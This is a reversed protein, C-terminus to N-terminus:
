KKPGGVIQYDIHTRLRKVAERIGRGHAAVTASLHEIPTIDLDNNSDAILKDLFRNMDGWAEQQQMWRYSASLSESM